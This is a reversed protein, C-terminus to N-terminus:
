EIPTICSSKYNNIAIPLDKYQQETKILKHCLKIGKTRGQQRPYNKYIIEFDLKTNKKNRRTEEKIHILKQSAETYNKLVDCYLNNLCDSNRETLVTDFESVTSDTSENLIKWNEIPEFRYTTKVGQITPNPHTTLMGAEILEAVAYMVTNNSLTTKKAILRISPHFNEAQALFYNFVHVAKSSLGIVPLCNPPTFYGTNHNQLNKKGFVM